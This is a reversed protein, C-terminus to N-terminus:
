QKSTIRVLISDVLEDATSYVDPLLLPSSRVFGKEALSTIWDIFPNWFGCPNLLFIPKNHLGLHWGSWVELLEELTGVGGPLAVVIDAMEFMKNKREMLTSVVHLESVYEKVLEETIKLNHTTVGVTCGGHAIATRGLTGMLGKGGGGYILKCGSVALLYALRQAQLGYESDDGMRAGAYVVVNLM